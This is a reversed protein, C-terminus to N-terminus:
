ESFHFEARRNIRYKAPPEILRGNGNAVIRDASIGYVKVLEDKVRNARKVSLAKNYKEGGVYDCYARVECLVNPNNKMIQAAKFIEQQADDDLSFKDFDFFVAPLNPPTGDDSVKITRGYFDVLSGPATNSELDRINPIGDGDDDPGDPSMYERMQDIDGRISDIQDQLNRIEDDYNKAPVTQKRLAEQATALTENDYERWTVDRTHPRQSNFKWRLNVFGSAVFDNTVGAYNLGLGTEIKKKSGELDDRNYATYNFKLGLALNKTFNYEINVGIPIILAWEKRVDTNDQDLFYTGDDIVPQNAHSKDASPAVICVFDDQKRNRAYGWYDVNMYAAGLGINAWIGWHTTINKNFVRLLNASAFLYGQHHIGESVQYKNAGIETYRAESNAQVPLYYYQLGLSVSPNFTHEIAVGGSLNGRVSEFFNKSYQNVDGDFANLGGELSLSWRTFDFYSRYRVQNSNGNTQAAVVLVFCSMLLISISKKM